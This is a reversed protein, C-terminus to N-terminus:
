EAKHGVWTGPYLLVLWAVIELRGLLMDLCLIMKLLFPLEASSIGVSLGVTGTASAVEFLADLPEYGLMVFPLWSIVIVSIFLVILLLADRVESEALPRSLMRPELVAHKSLCTRVLMVQTLRLVILLRLIKFGGATSGVGGGVVMALILVLKAAPDLEALNLTSFGATTQASFALLPAHHLVQSWSSGPSSSMCLGLLGTILVGSIFLAQLQLRPVDRSWHREYIRYYLALPLAGCFSLLIVAGEAPWAGLGAVSQDHPAFGGTSVAALTYAVAPFLEVRLLWLGLVGSVTLLSYVILVRRAHVRTGGVLGDQGTEAIALRKAAVGPEVVLALSLVVIGLGGYWQMWARTFIFTAPKDEVVMLTSLGTTTAGSIAEFLADVFSLGAAMFPYSMLLPTVLFILAVLVLGENVQVDTSSRLRSLLGGLTAFGGSVLACRMSFTTEGCFLAVALPPLTLASLVLCLQGFYKLVVSFRIAYRLAAAQSPM